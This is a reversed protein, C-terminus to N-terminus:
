LDKAMSILTSTMQIQPLKRIQETVFRDLERMSDIEVKVVIDYEGYVEGAEIVQDKKRLDDMINQEDGAGTVLLIFAIMLDGIYILNKVYFLKSTVKEGVKSM